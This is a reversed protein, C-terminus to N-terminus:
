GISVTASHAVFGLARLGTPYADRFRFINGKALATADFDIAVLDREEIEAVAEQGNFVSARVASTWQAVSDDCASHHNAWQV